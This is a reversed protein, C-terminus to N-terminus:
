CLHISCQVLHATHHIKRNISQLNSASCWRNSGCPLVHCSSTPEATAKSNYTEVVSLRKRMSFLGGFTSWQQRPALQMCFWLRRGLRDRFAINIVASATRPTSSSPPSQKTFISKLSRQLVCHPVQREVAPESEEAALGWYHLVRKLPCETRWKDFDKLKTSNCMQSRRMSAHFIPM